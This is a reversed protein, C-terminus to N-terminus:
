TVAAAVDVWIGANIQRLGNCQTITARTSANFPKAISPKGDLPKRGHACQARPHVDDGRGVGFAIASGAVNEACCHRHKASGTLRL